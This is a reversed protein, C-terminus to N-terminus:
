AASCTPGSTSLLSALSYPVGYQGKRLKQILEIGAIVIRPNRFSKFGLMASVRFKVRRHDQEVINNLYKCCRIKLPNDWRFNFENRMGMRRLSFHSPEFGDLTISRPEGHLKLAQRFFTRAAMQDRPRPVEHRPVEHELLKLQQLSLSQSSFQRKLFPTTNSDLPDQNDLWFSVAYFGATVLVAFVIVAIKLVASGRNVLAFAVTMILLGIGLSAFLKL